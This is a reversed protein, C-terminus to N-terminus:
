LGTFGWEVSTCMDQDYYDPVDVEVTLWVQIKITWVLKATCFAFKMAGAADKYTHHAANRSAATMPMCLAM